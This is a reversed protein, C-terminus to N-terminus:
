PASRGEWLMRGDLSMLRVFDREAKGIRVGAALPAGRGAKDMSGIRLTGISESELGAAGSGIGPALGVTVGSHAAWAIAQAYLTKTFATKLFVDDKHGLGSYFFRGGQPPEVTWVIPHDGMAPGCGRCTSEDETFLVHVGSTTRPNRTYSYWEEDFAASAGLGQVIPHDTAGPDRKMTATQTNAGHALFACGFFSLFEPWSDKIIASGHWAIAGKSRFFEMAAAKQDANLIKGMESVQNLIVVQYKALNAKTFVAPDQSKVLDFGMAQSLSDLYRNAAVRSDHVFGGAGWFDLVAFGAAKSPLASLCSLAASLSAAARFSFVTRFTPKAVRM